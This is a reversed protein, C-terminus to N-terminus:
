EQVAMLVSPVPSLLVTWNRTMHLFFMEGGFAETTSLRKIMQNTQMHDM